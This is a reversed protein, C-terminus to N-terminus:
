KGSSINRLDKIIISRASELSSKLVLFDDEHFSKLCKYHHYSFNERDVNFDSSNESNECNKKLTVCNWNALRWACEYHFDDIESSEEGKNTTKIFQGLLYQYGSNELASMM